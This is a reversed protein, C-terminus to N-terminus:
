DLNDGSRIGGEGVAADNALAPSMGTLRYVPVGPMVIGKYVMFSLANAAFIYRCYVPADPMFTCSTAPGAENPHARDAPPTIVLVTLPRGSSSVPFPYQ